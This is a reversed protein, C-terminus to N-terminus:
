GSFASQLGRGRWTSGSVGIPEDHCREGCPMEIHGQCLHIAVDLTM